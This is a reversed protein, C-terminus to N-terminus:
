LLKSPLNLSQVHCLAEVVGPVLLAAAPNPNETLIQELPVYRKLVELNLFVTAVVDAGAAKKAAQYAPVDALNGGSPDERLDLMAKIADPKNAAVLRNGIIAHAEQDDFTWGTVGRYDASRVRDPQGQKQAENKAFTLLIDHLEQLMQPNESDVILLVQEGPSVALTISGGLLQALARKWDTGLQAELHAIVRFFHQFGQQAEAQQYAPSSKITAIMKESFAVDLLAKPQNVEIVFIADDPIWRSAPPLPEAAVPVQLLSVLLPLIMVSVMRRLM